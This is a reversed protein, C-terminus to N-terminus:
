TLILGNRSSKALINSPESILKKKTGRNWSKLNKKMSLSQKTANFANPQAYSKM